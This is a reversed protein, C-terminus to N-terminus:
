LECVELDADDMSSNFEVIKDRGSNKAEYLAIDAYKIAGWISKNQQPFHSVGISITKQIVEDKFNFKVNQFEQKIKQAVQIAGANTTNYLIVLFEEGGYRIAIDSKRINRQIEQALTKIVLDGSDHGYNDNVSKFYDIDIMLISYAVDARLAQESTQEIFNELFRRNYLHTAADKLSSDRLKDMLIHSEIIPKAADLYSLINPINKNIEEIVRRSKSSYSLVLTYNDNIEFPICTYEKDMACNTCINDFDLSYVDRNVRYSRCEIANKDVSPLCFSNGNTIHILRRTNSEKDIEYIAFHEINFKKHLIHAIREYVQKKSTDLEITRKFKYVDSLEEIIKGASDLPDSSSLNSSSIFTSLNYKIGELTLEIKQFLTNMQEAVENGSDSLKTTFRFSFDGTHAKKIGTQLNEFLRMYPKFYYNTVFLAIIIFVVNIGFIKLVTMAGTQRVDNIDFEMSIAGLVEGEAVNHCSLCNPNGYATAVYPITVRLIAQQENESIDRISIGEALVQRDIDDRPKENQMGDGYQKIVNESRVIWLSKVDKINAINSLFFDRKDMMDNVMHATLGDRVIEATMKSKEVANQYGYDRFNLAVNTITAVALAMLMLAVIFLIKRNTNM